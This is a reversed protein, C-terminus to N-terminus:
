ITFNIISWQPIELLTAWKIFITNILYLYMSACKIKSKDKVDGVKIGYGPM